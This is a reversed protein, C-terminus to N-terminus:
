TLCESVWCHSLQFLMPLPPSLPAAHDSSHQPRAGGGSGSGSPQPNVIAWRPSHLAEGRGRHDISV